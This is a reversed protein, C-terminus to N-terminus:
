EARLAETPNISAARRAPLFSALLSAAGLILGVSVLTGVDWAQVGFLLKRMLSAALISTVLGLGLGIGILRGSELLILRYVASRQAGLAMRVGIERRRQGVSYAVVGYLGVIGLLLAVIAFGGVLWASSRHLYTSPADHIKQDMTMPNYIAMGRDVSALAFTLAPLLSRDDQATRALVIFGNDPSQYFPLYVAGRPAADLQGEQISDIVGIILVPKDGFAIQKGVPDEGPFYQTAMAQSIIAVKPKSNDEDDTFYRGSLLRTKLTTWYGASVFRIAVEKHQGNDPRGLIGFGTTFDADEIPMKQTVGVAQVGPLAAVTRLLERVLMAQQEPKGYKERQAQVHITAIHDPQLGLNTHLLMYLSKMLLGAGALLVMATALEIVVLNAGFRRWTLGSSTRGQESLGEGIKARRFRAIPTVAFLTGVLVALGGAFALVHSNMGLQHLYPMSTMMDKPILAALIRM